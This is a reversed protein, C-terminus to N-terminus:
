PRVQVCAVHAAILKPYSQNCEIDHVLSLLDPPLSGAQQGPKM